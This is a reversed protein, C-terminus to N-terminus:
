VIMCHWHYYYSNTHTTHQPRTNRQTPAINSDGGGLEYKNLYKREESVVVRKNESKITKMMM